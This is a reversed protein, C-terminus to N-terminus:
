SKDDAKEAVEEQKAKEYARQSMDVIDSLVEYAADYAEGLPCQYPMTFTYVNDGKKVEFSVALKQSTKPAKANKM